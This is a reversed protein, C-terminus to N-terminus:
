REKRPKLSKLLPTKYYLERRAKYHKMDNELLNRSDIYERSEKGRLNEILKLGRKTANSEDKIAKTKLKRILSKVLGPSDDEKVVGNGDVVKQFEPIFKRSVKSTIKEIPNRSRRSRIHGIEHALSPTESKRGRPYIIIDNNEDIGKIDDESLGKFRDKIRKKQKKTCTKYTQM